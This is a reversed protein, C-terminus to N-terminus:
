GIRIRIAANCNPSTRSFEELPQRMVRLNFEEVGVLSVELVSDNMQDLVKPADSIKGGYLSTSISGRSMSYAPLRPEHHTTADQRRHGFTKRESRDFSASIGFACGPSLRLDPRSPSWLWVPVIRKRLMSTLSNGTVDMLEALWGLVVLGTTAGDGVRTM